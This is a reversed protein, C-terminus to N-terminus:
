REHEAARDWQMPAERITDALLKLPRYSVALVVQELEFAVKAVAKHLATNHCTEAVIDEFGVAGATIIRALYDMKRTAPNLKQRGM